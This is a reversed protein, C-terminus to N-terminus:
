VFLALLAAIKAAACAAPIGIDASSGASGILEIFARRAAACTLITNFKKNIKLISHISQNNNHLNCNILIKPAHYSFDKALKLCMPKEVVVLDLRGKMLM